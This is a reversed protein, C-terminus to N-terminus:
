KEPTKKKKETNKEKINNLSKVKDGKRYKRYLQFVAYNMLALGGIGLWGLTEQHLSTYLPIDHIGAISTFATAGGISFKTIPDRLADLVKSLPKVGINWLKQGLKFKSAPTDLSDKGKEYKEYGEKKIITKDEIGM